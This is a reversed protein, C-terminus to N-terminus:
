LGKFGMKPTTLIVGLLFLRSLPCHFLLLPAVPDDFGDFRQFVDVKVIPNENLLTKGMEVRLQRGIRRFNVADDLVNEVRVDGDPVKM